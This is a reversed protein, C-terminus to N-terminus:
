DAQNVSAETFGSSDHYSSDDLEARDEAQDEEAQFRDEDDDDLQEPPTSERRRKRTGPNMAEGEPSGRTRLDSREANCLYTFLDKAPIFIEENLAGSALIKLAFDELRLQLGLQPDDILNGDESRFEQSIHAWATSSSLSFVQDILTRFAVLEEEGADNIEIQPRWISLTAMKGRYDVDVGVVARIRADSGLIYDDALRPLDKRKQSYSIEIVVGPYKADIHTFSADPEHKGYQPDDFTLTLSGTPEINQAFQAAPGTGNAISLLQQLIEAGIKWALQEHLRSPMRLVFLCASPFYDSRLKLTLSDYEIRLAVYRFGDEQYRQQLYEYDSGSLNFRLWPNTSRERGFKRNEIEQIIDELATRSRRTGAKQESSPPTLPTTSTL